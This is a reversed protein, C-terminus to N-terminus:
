VEIKKPRRWGFWWVIFLRTVFLATIVSTVIGIGLTTAFGRVPGSGVFWLIAATIFTTVNADLIASLAREYGLEIARAPGKATKLEERIREYVLVNADVAMGMTLVIGAIGPLTLTAGLVSLVGFVMAMNLMLAVNAIWGFLGYSLGMFVMVLAFGVLAALQGARV